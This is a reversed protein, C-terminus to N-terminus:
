KKKGIIIEIKVEGSVSALSKGQASDFPEVFVTEYTEELTTKLSTVIKNPVDSAPRLKTTVFGSSTANKTEVVDFGLGKLKEALKGAEGEVLTGNLVRVKFDAPKPEPAPQAAPSAVPSVVETKKGGLQPLNKVIIAVLVFGVIGAGVLFLLRSSPLGPLKPLKEFLSGWGRSGLRLYSAMITDYVDAESLRNITLGSAHHLKEALEKSFVGITYATKVDGLNHNVVYEGFRTVFLDTKFESAELIAGNQAVAFAVDKELPALLFYEGDNPFSAVLDNVLSRVAVVTKGTELFPRQLDEILKKEFAVHTVRGSGAKDGRVPQETLILEERFYPLSQVFSDVSDSVDLTKTFTKDAPLFLVVDTVDRLQPKQSFAMKVQSSFKAADAIFADKVVEASFTIQGAFVREKGKYVLLKLNDKELFAALTM